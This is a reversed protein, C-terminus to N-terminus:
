PRRLCGQDEAGFAPYLWPWAVRLIPRLEMVAHMAQLAKGNGNWPVVRTYQNEVACRGEALQKLLM